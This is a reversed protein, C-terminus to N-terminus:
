EVILKGNLKIDNNEKKIRVSYIDKDLNIYGQKLWLNVKDLYEKKRAIKDDIIAQDFRDISQRVGAYRWFIMYSLPRSIQRELFVQKVYTAYRDLPQDDKQLELLDIATDESLLKMQVLMTLYLYNDQNALEISDQLKMLESRRKISLQRFYPLQSVTAAVKELLPKSIELKLEASSDRLLESADDVYSESLPWNMKGQMQLMGDTSNFELNDLKIESKKSIIRPTMLSVKRQLQSEYLEGQQMVTYYADILGLIGKSKLGTASVQLNIPGYSQDAFEISKIQLNRTGAVEGAQEGANGYFNFGTVKLQDGGITNWVFEPTAIKLYGLWLGSLGRYQNLSFELKSLRLTNNEVKMLVNLFQFDANVHDQHPSFLLEGSIGDQVRLSFGDRADTWTFNPLIFSKRFNGAFTVVDDNQTFPVHLESLQFFLQIDKSVTMDNHVAALGVVYGDKNGDSFVVPGHKITQVVDFDLQPNKLGVEEWWSKVMPNIIKVHVEAVASRYGREYKLLQISVNGQRNYSSIIQRYVHEFYLGSLWPSMGAIVIIAGALVILKRM